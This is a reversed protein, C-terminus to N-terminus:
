KQIKSNIETSIEKSRSYAAKVALNLDLSVNGLEFIRLASETVGDPPTLKTCLTAPQITSKSLMDFAGSAAQILLNLSLQEEIGIDISAKVLSDLIYLFYAPGAGSIAIIADAQNECSLWQVQGTTSYLKEILIKDEHAVQHTAVLVHTGTYTLVPPNSIARIIKKSGTLKSITSIEISPMMSIIIKNKLYKKLVYKFEKILELELMCVVIKARQLALSKSEPISTSYLEPIEIL